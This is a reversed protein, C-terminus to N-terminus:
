PGIVLPRPKVEVVSARVLEFSDRVDVTLTPNTVNGASLSFQPVAQWDVKRKRKQHTVIIDAGDPDQGTVETDPEVLTEAEKDDFDDVAIFLHEKLDQRGAPWRTYSSEREPTKTEIATWVKNLATNSVDTRGGYWVEAGPSGFIRHRDHALRRAVYQNVDMAQMKGDVLRPTSDIIVEDMTALTVRKVEKTSVREFRYQATAEFWDRAVHADDRHAGVGGGALKPHCIHQAHTCRIRRSNFACLIDGDKYTDTDGIKLALEAM